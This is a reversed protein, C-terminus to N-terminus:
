FYAPSPWRKVTHIPLSAPTAGLTRSWARESTRRKVKLIDADRPIESPWFAPRMSVVKQKEVFPHLSLGRFSFGTSQPFFDWGWLRYECVASPIRSSPKTERVDWRLWPSCFNCLDNWNLKTFKMKQAKWDRLKDDSFISALHICLLYSPPLPLNNSDLATRTWKFAWAWSSALPASAPLLATLISWVAVQLSHSKEQKLEMSSHNAILIRWRSM